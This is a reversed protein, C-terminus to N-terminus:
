EVKNSIQAVLPRFRKPDVRGVTTGSHEDREPIGSAISRIPKVPNVRHLM